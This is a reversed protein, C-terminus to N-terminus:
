RGTRLELSVVAKVLSRVSDSYGRQDTYLAGRFTHTLAHQGRCVGPTYVVGTANMEAYTRSKDKKTTIVLQWFCLMLSAKWYTAAGGMLRFAHTHVKCFYLFIEIILLKKM